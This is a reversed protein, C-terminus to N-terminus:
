AFVIARRIAYVGVFSAGAAMIKAVIPSVGMATASAM